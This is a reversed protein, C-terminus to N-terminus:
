PSPRTARPSNRKEKRPRLAGSNNDLSHHVEEEETEETADALQLFAQVESAHIINSYGKLKDAVSKIDSKSVQVLDFESGAAIYGQLDQKLLAIVDIAEQAQKLSRVFLQNSYCQNELLSASKRQIEEQRAENWSLYSKTERLEQEFHQRNRLADDSIKQNLSKVQTFKGITAQGIEEDSANKADAAYQADANSEKLDNLLEFV